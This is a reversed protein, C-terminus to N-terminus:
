ASLGEMGLVPHRSVRGSGDGPDIANIADVEAATLEFDFVDRNEAMREPRSSKPFLIFGRQLHWRIVVQAPTKGHASAADAVAPNEFLPYKGQGLPGWSEIKTGNAAAWATVDAQQYAPHLEIQNAAPVVGTEAVLRDLHEPLHNSVGISRVVGEDRLEIMKQWANVYLGQEPEPWHSLYLDVYDLGLKDLSEGFAAKPDDGAQRDHWLKTTVFLEDRPIGSSAIAAGVGEENKYFAATDIHRYGAELAESVAKEAEAPPVLFVGFGLQPIDYGSNLRVQPVTM